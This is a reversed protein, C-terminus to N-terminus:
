DELYANWFYPWPSPTVDQLRPSKASLANFDGIKIYPVEDFVTQQVEAWLAIREDQTLAANFADVTADRAPSDWWGAATKSLSNILGPEPLFPSHTIFIEWLAPNKNRQTLTAWDSVQLDVTFGALKLYEAAVLAMKYHHEYQQSTLIRLPQGDYGAQELLQGAKEQDNQNYAETGVDTHWVYGEPYLAGDAAYFETSGFAAALMDETNLAAQVAKRLDLDALLGEKTNMVFVPWGFPKLIIPQSASSGSIRAASEVPLADTYDFQGAVAGEIRTNANPVPVFRIEDLYAPRAGGFGDPEGDRSRYGDFRVLQIYQDPARAELRYPGSGVIETLPNALKEEPLIVAASNNFALLAPLPAFPENLSLRVTHDDVAEVGTVHGAALKGRSALEMWRELSAVVDSATLDSGDHFTLGQRIRITLTKGGDSVEPLAEAILPTVNWDADFTYLTEFIHQSVLGVIDTASIMPDLTPPEGITAVTIVGGKTPEAQATGAAAIGAVALVFLNKLM